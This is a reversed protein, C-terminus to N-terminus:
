KLLEIGRKIEIAGTYFSKGSIVGELNTYNFNKLNELDDYNSLGGGVIMPKTSASLNQAILDIDIGKMTGDRAVDTFIFGKIKTKNYINIINEVSSMSENTWGDIM